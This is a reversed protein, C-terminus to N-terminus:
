RAPPFDREYEASDVLDALSGELPVGVAEAFTQLEAQDFQFARGVTLLRHREKDLVLLLSLPSVNPVDVSLLRIEGVQGAPVEIRRRLGTIKGVVGDGTYLRLNRQRLAIYSLAYITATLALAIAPSLPHGSRFSLAIGIMVALAIVFLLIPPIDRLLRLTGTSRPRIELSM